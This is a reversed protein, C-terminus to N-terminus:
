KREFYLSLGNASLIFYCSKLGYFSLSSFACIQCFVYFKKKQKQNNTKAQFKRLAPLDMELISTAVNIAATAHTLTHSHATDLIRFHNKEICKEPM